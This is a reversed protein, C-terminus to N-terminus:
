PILNLWHGEQFTSCLALALPHFLELPHYPDPVSSYPHPATQHHHNFPDPLCHAPPSPLKGPTPPSSCCHPGRPDNGVNCNSRMRFLQCMIPIRASTNWRYSVSIGPRRGERTRCPLRLDSGSLHFQLHRWVSPPGLHLLSMLFLTLTLTANLPCPRLAPVSVSLHM